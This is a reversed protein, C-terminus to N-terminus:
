EAWMVVFVFSILEARRGGVDVGKRHAEGTLRLAAAVHAWRQPRGLFSPLAPHLPFIFRVSGALVAAFLAPNELFDRNAPLLRQDTERHGIGSNPTRIEFELKRLRFDLFTTHSQNM